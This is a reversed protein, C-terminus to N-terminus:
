PEVTLEAIQVRHDELEIEFIGAVTARFELRVRRNPVLERFVDYGHVHVRDDIDSRVYLVVRDGKDASRRVIGGIPAGRHVTIRIVVPQEPPPTTETATVTGTDTTTATTDTTTVEDGGGCSALAFGAALAVLAIALVVRVRVAVV